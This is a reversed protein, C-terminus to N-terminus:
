RWLMQPTHFMAESLPLIPSRMGLGAGPFRSPNRGARLGGSSRETCPYVALGGSAGVAVPLALAEPVGM